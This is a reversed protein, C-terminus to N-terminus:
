PPTAGYMNTAKPSAAFFAKAAQYGSDYLFQKQEASLAFDLTSVDGTPIAVTRNGFAKMELKDFANMATDLIAGLMDLPWAVGSIQDYTPREPASGAFLRFGWTPHQPQPTDFLFVPYASVVGGDVLVGDKRTVADRLKLPPFFYPYGASIRVADAIAFEAPDLPKGDPDTYLSVDEPFVVVRAHALDSGVVRLHGDLEGFKTAPRPADKLLQEIFRSLVKGRTLADRVILNEIRGVGLPGGYDAIKALDFAELQQKMGAPDYGVALAMATIAGASTGAVNVWEDYGADAAAQLAGTFALGKVGGGAFVGDARM